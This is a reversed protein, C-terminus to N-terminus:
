LRFITKLEDNIKTLVKRKEINYPRILNFSKEYNFYGIDGIESIQDFNEEDIKIVKDTIIQATYYIHKYKVNNTGLINEFQIDINKIIKYDTSYLGTEENFERIACSINKEKIKRRGKPFGWEPEIWNTQSNDIFYKLNILKTPNNKDFYGGERLSIFKKKSKKFESLQKTSYIEPRVWLSEWLDNFSILLLNSKEKNTMEDIIRQLFDIDDLKYKGRFLEIYGHSFKRRVLLYHLGLDKKKFAVIGISTKPEICYRYIHGRKGCNICIIKKNNKKDRKKM